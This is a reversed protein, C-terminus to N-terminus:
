RLERTRFFGEHEPYHLMFLRAYFPFHCNSIKFGQYRTPNISTEWRLRQIILHAGSHRCGAHVLEFAFRVFLDYVHPFRAHYKQFQPFHKAWGCEQQLQQFAEGLTPRTIRTRPASFLDLSM